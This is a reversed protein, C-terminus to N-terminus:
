RSTRCASSAHSCRRPRALRRFRRSEPPHRSPPFRRCTAQSPCSCAPTPSTSRTWRASATQNTQDRRRRRRCCRRRRRRRGGGGEEEAEVAAVHKSHLEGKKAAELAELSAQPPPKRKNRSPRVDMSTAGQKYDGDDFLVCVSESEVLLVIGAFWRDRGNIEFRGDVRQGLEYVVERRRAEEAERKKRREEEERRAAEEAEERAKEAKAKREAARARGVAGELGRSLFDLVHLSQVNPPFSPGGCALFLALLAARLESLLLPPPPASPPLHSRLFKCSRLFSTYLNLTATNLLPAPFYLPSSPPSPPLAPATSSVHFLSCTLSFLHRKV